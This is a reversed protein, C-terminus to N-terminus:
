NRKYVLHELRLKRGRPTQVSNAGLTSRVIGVDFQCEDSGVTRRRRYGDLHLTSDVRPVDRVQEVTVVEPSDMTLLEALRPLDRGVDLPRVQVAM